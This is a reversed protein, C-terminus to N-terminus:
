GAPVSPVSAQCPSLLSLVTDGAAGSVCSVAEAELLGVMLAAIICGVATVLFVGGGEAEFMCSVVALLCGVTKGFIWDVEVELLWGGIARFM